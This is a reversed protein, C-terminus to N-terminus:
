TIAYDRTIELRINTLLGDSNYELSTNRIEKNQYRRSEAQVPILKINGSGHYEQPAAYNSAVVPRRTFLVIGGLLLAVLLLGLAGERNVNGGLDKLLKLV